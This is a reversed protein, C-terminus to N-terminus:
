CNLIHKMKGRGRGCNSQRVVVGVIILLTLCIGTGVSVGMILENDSMEAQLPIKEEILQLEPRQLTEVTNYVAPSSGKKNIAFM